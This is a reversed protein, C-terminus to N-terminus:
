NAGICGCKSEHTHIGCRGNGGGTLTCVKGTSCNSVTGCGSADGSGAMVNKMEARSLKGQVNALSLKTKEM